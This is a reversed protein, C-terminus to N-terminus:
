FYYENICPQLTDVQTISVYCDSNLCGRSLNQFAITGKGRIKVVVSIDELDLDENYIKEIVKVGPISEMESVIDNLEDYYTIRWWGYLFLLSAAGLVSVLTLLRWIRKSYISNLDDDIASM